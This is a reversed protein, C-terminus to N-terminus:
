IPEGTPEVPEDADSDVRLRVLAACRKGPEQKAVFSAAKKYDVGNVKWWLEVNDGVNPYLYSPHNRLVVADAEGERAPTVTGEAGKVVRGDADKEYAIM